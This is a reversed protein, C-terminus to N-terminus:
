TRLLRHRLSQNPVLNLCPPPNCYPCSPKALPHNPSLHTPSPAQTPLFSRLHSISSFAQTLFFSSDFSSKPRHSHLFLSSQTLNHLSHTSRLSFLFHFIYIYIYLKLPLYFLIYPSTHTWYGNVSSGNLNYCTDVKLCVDCNKVPGICQM